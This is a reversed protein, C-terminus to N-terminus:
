LVDDKRFLNIVRNFSYAIMQKTKHLFASQKRIKLKNRKTKIKYTCEIGTLQGLTVANCDIDETDLIRSNESLLFLHQPINENEIVFLVSDLTFYGYIKNYKILQYYSYNQTNFLTLNLVSDRKKYNYNFWLRVIKIEPKYKKVRKRLNNEFKANLISVSDARVSYEPCKEQYKQGYSFSGILLVIISTLFLKMNLIRIKILNQHNLRRYIFINKYRNL